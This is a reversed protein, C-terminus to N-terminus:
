NVTEQKENFRGSLGNVNLAMYFDRLCIKSHSMEDSMHCVNKRVMNLFVMYMYKCGNRKIRKHKFCLSLCGNNLLCKTLDVYYYMFILSFLCLCVCVTQGKFPNIINM